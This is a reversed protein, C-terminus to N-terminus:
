RNLPLIFSVIDYTKKNKIFGGKIRGSEKFGLKEYLRIASKNGNIVDLIISKYGEKKLMALVTRVLIEGFGQKRLLPNTGLSQIQAIHASEKPFRKSIIIYSVLGDKTELVYTQGRKSTLLADFVAETIKETYSFFNDQAIKKLLTMFQVRDNKALKRTKM